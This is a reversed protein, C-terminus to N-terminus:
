RGAKLDLVVWSHFLDMGKEVIKIREEWKEMSSYEEKIMVELM